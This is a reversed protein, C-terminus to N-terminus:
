APEAALEERLHAPLRESAGLGRAAARAVCVARLPPLALYPACLAASVEAPLARRPSGDRWWTQAAARRAVRPRRPATPSLAALLLALVPWHRNEAALALAQSGQAAADAGRSLLLAALQVHGSAAAYMLARGGPAAASAGRSILLAALPLHGRAAATRWRRAGTPPRPPAAPSCCRPSGWTATIPPM